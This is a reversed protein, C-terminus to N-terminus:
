SSLDRAALNLPCLICLRVTVVALKEWNPEFISSLGECRTCIEFALLANIGGM